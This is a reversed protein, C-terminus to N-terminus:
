CARTSSPAAPTVHRCCYLMSFYRLQVLFQWYCLLRVEWGEFHVSPVATWNAIRQEIDYLLTDDSRLLLLLLLLLAAMMHGCCM